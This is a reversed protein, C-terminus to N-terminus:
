SEPYREQLADVFAEGAAVARRALTTIGEESVSGNSEQLWSYFLGKAFGEIESKRQMMKRHLKEVDSLEQEPENRGFRFTKPDIFGLSFSYGEEDKM